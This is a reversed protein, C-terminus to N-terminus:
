IKNIRKVSEESIKDALKGKEDKKPSKDESVKGVMRDLLINQHALSPPFNIETSTVGELVMKSYGLASHWILRALAQVKSVMIDEGDENKICETKEKAIENIADTLIKGAKKKATRLSTNKNNKPLKWNGECVRM